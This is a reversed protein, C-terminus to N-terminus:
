RFELPNDLNVFCVDASFNASHRLDLFEARTRFIANTLVGIFRRHYGDQLTTPTYLGLVYRTDSSFIKPGDNLFHHSLIGMHHGIGAGDQFARHSVSFMILNVMSGFLVDSVLVANADRCIRDFPVKGSQFAPDITYVMMDPLLVEM